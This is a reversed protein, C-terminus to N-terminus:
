GRITVPGPLGHAAIGLVNCVLGAIDTQALMTWDGPAVGPGVAYFPVIREADGPGGHMGDPGMGHDSTVIVTYGAAWWEPMARALLDDAGRAAAQYARSEGGHKHGAHDVGMSHILLLHPDHAARLCEADAFLHDDPYEDRWYFLGHQIPRATDNTIRHAPRFPAENCLESFWHYAAAGTRLGAARVLGFVHPLALTRSIANSTIGSDVPTKGTLLTAYLPRSLCPLEAALTTACGGRAAVFAPVFGFSRQAETARLGDIVVLIVKRESLPAPM